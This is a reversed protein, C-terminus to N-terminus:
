ASPSQPVPCDSCRSRAKASSIGMKLSIEGYSKGGGRLLCIKASLIADEGLLAVFAPWNILALEQLKRDLETMSQKPPKYGNIM